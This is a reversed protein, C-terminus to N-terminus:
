GDAGSNCRIQQGKLECGFRERAKLQTSKGGTPFKAGGQSRQKAACPSRVALSLPWELRARLGNGPGPRCARKRVVGACNM